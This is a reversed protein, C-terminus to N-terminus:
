PTSTWRVELDFSLAPSIALWIPPKPCTNSKLVGSVRSLESSDSSSDSPPEGSIKTLAAPIKLRSGIVSVERSTNLSLKVTLKSPGNATMLHKRGSMTDLPEPKIILIPDTAPRM